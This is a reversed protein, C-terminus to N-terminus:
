RCAKRCNSTRRLFQLVASASRLRSGTGRSGACSPSHQSLLMPLLRLSSCNLTAFSSLTASAIVACAREGGGELVSSTGQGTLAPPSARAPIERRRCYNRCCCWRRDARARCLRSRGRREWITLRPCSTRWTAIVESYLRPERAIWEVLDLVLPDAIETM